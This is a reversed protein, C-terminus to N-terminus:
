KLCPMRVFHLEVPLAPGVTGLCHLGRMRAGGGVVFPDTLLHLFRDVIWSGCNRVLVDHLLRSRADLRHAFALTRLSSHLDLCFIVQEIVKSVDTLVIGIRREFQHPLDARPQRGACAAWARDRRGSAGAGSQDMLLLAARVAGM